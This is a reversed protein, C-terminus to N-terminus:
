FVTLLKKKKLQILFSRQISLMFSSFIGSRCFKTWLINEQQQTFAYVVHMLSHRVILVLDGGNCMQILDGKFVFYQSFTQLDQNHVAQKCFRHYYM